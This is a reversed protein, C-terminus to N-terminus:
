LIPAPICYFAIFLKRLVDFAIHWLDSVVDVQGEGCAVRAEEVLQGGPQVDDGKGTLVQGSGAVGVHEGVLDSGDEDQHLM